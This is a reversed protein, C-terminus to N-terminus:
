SHQAVADDRYINATTLSAVPQLGILGDAGHLCVVAALIFGRAMSVNFFLTPLALVLLVASVCILAYVGGRLDRVDRQPIHIPTTVWMVLIRACLAFGLFAVLLIPVAPGLSSGFQLWMLLLLFVGHGFLVLTLASCGQAATASERLGFKALYAGILHWRFLMIGFTLGQLYAAVRWWSGGGSIDGDSGAVEDGVM